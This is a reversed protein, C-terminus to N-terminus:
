EEVARRPFVGTLGAVSPEAAAIESRFTPARVPQAGAELAVQSLLQTKVRAWSFASAQSDSYSLMPQPYESIGDSSSLRSGSTSRVIMSTSLDTVSHEVFM